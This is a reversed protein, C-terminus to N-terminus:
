GRGAVRWEWAALVTVLLMEGAFYIWGFATVSAAFYVLFGATLVVYLANAVAVVRLFVPKVPGTLFRFAIGTAALVVALVGLM